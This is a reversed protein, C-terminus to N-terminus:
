LTKKNSNYLNVGEYLLANLETINIDERSSYNINQKFKNCYNDLLKMLEISDLLDPNGNRRYIILSNIVKEISKNSNALFLTQFSCEPFQNFEKMYNMMCIIRLCFILSKVPVKDLTKLRAIERELIKVYQIAFKDFVFHENAYKRIKYIFDTEGYEITSFLAECALVNHKSVMSLFRDIDWGQVDYEGDLPYSLTKEKEDLRLYDFVDRTYVFRLDHDSDEVNYNWNRSGINFGGLVKVNETSDITEFKEKYKDM